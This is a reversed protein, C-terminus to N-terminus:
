QMVVPSQPNLEGTALELAAYSVICRYVSDWYNTQSARDADEARLLETITVLGSEYRDRMMRLSEQAQQVTARSVELMQRSADQDLWARRVDLRITDEAM